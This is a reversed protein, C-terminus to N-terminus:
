AEDIIARYLNIYQGAVLDSDFNRVVKERANSSLQKYNDNNLVWDIGRAFDDTDLPTALYGNIKHDVIDLLGTHGFAVVPVGCSMAESATQGFAEQRSPVLMVDVSSYLATLSVDDNVVNMYHIKCGIDLPIKPESSGFVVFEVDKTNIRFLSELLERFGKRADSTPAMAGFLILKKDQPLNWLERSFYRDAPKYIKTNLPNPLNAVKKNEFLESQNACEQIWRSVGILTLNNMILFVKKKRKFIIQDIKKQYRSALDEEYHWGGCLPWMDHLTWVVKANIKAIDEIRLMGGNVWHLHVVDPDQANIKNILGKSPFWACSFLSPTVSKSFYFPLKDLTPRLRSLLKELKNAPGIVTYDLSTKSQVLMHSDVYNDLLSKHLRYAARAAGGNEDSSNVILIKM